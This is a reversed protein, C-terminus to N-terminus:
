AGKGNPKPKLKAQREAAAESQSQSEMTQAHSQEGQELAQQHSVDGAELGQAHAKDGEADGQAAGAAAMALEHAQQDDQLKLKIVGELKLLMADIQGQIQQERLAFEEKMQELQASTQGKAQEAAVKGQQEVQKTELAQKMATIEQQAMELMQMAQGLKAQLEEPSPEGEKGQQLQPPQMKKLLDAAEQHGPFDQFSLWTPGLIPMMDPAAQIIQGLADSGAELRSRHSKGISISTGYVGKKLNILRPTKPKQGPEAQPPPIPRGDPGEIFPSNIMVANENDEGDVGRVIRGERDYYYAIWQLGTRAEHRMGRSLNDLYNSNAQESQQQEALIAKAPKNGRAQKGLSPDYTSTTAQLSDNALAILQLSSSLDPSEIMRRPPEVPQGNLSTPKYRVMSLNRVTSLEFEQEHGEEQGEAVLWPVKTALADKGVASSVEINLLRQSDKARAIVGFFMREDNFPQLEQGLVPFIPIYDGPLTAEELVEVGNVKCWRVRPQQILRSKGSVTKTVPEFEIYFYEALRITRGGADESGSWWGEVLEDNLGDFDMETFDALRSLPTGDSKKGGYEQKYRDFPMMEYILAKRGDSWDPETAFPDLLVTRQDLIRKIVVKQDFLGPGDNDENAYESIFRYYGIGAKVAREYAWTRALDAFSDREIGRYIDQIAEATEKDANESLPHVQVGLHANREQNLILQIPQDIKSVSLRPRPPSFHGGVMGGDFLKKAADTWQLDPVQFALDENERKLQDARWQTALTCFARAAKVRPDATTDTQEDSM